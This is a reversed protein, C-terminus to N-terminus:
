KEVYSLFLEAHHLGKEIMSSRSEETSIAEIWNSFDNMNEIICRVTYKVDKQKPGTDIERQMKRIIAYMYEFMSSKETIMTDNAIFINKFALIENTNCKEQSICDNLPFNNLLGGDIYCADGSCVPKFAVPYATTMCIAKIIPLDPHTKHSMDIKEFHYTNINTAYIHIDIHNWDYLQKFTINTDLDKGHLLPVMVDYVIKEGFFGKEYLSQFLSTANIQFLNMWPRKIFYDDMWEWEYNLSLIVGMCAGISCGYISKINEINWFGKNHLYKAAGYTVLGAPGGGSLVLHKIHIADKDKEKQNQMDNGNEDKERNENKIIENEDENEKNDSM